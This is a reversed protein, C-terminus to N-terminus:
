DGWQRNLEKRRNDTLCEWYSNCDDETEVNKDIIIYSQYGSPEALYRYCTDKLLCKDNRCMSIDVM